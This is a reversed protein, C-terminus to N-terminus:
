NRERAGGLRLCTTTLSFPVLSFFIILLSVDRWKLRFTTANEHLRLSIVLHRRPGRPRRLAECIKVKM